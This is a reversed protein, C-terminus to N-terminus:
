LAHAACLFIYLRLLPKEVEAGKIYNEKPHPCHPLHGTCQPINCLMGPKWGSSALLVVGNRYGTDVSLPLNGRPAFDGWNVVVQM